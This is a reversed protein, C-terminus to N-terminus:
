GGRREESRLPGRCGRHDGGAQGCPPRREDKSGGNFPDPSSLRPQTRNDHGAPNPSRCASGTAGCDTTSARRVATRGVSWIGVSWTCLCSAALHPRLPNVWRRARFLTTYPCLTDTRTSKPPRRLMLVFLTM